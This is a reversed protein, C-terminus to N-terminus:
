LPLPRSAAHAYRSLISQVREGNRWIVDPQKYYGKAAYFEDCMAWEVVKKLDDPGFGEALRASIRSLTAKRVKPSKIHTATRQSWYDLVEVAFLDDSM